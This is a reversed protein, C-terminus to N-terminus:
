AFAAADSVGRLQAAAGTGAAGRDAGARAYVYTHPGPASRRLLRVAPRDRRPSRGLQGIRAGAHDMLFRGVLDHANGIGSTQGNNSALLLRANEIGSAALVCHRATAFYRAGSLTAMELHDFRSGSQALNIRTATANLLVRINPAKFSAFERGFRMVDLHDVRSRAFQW